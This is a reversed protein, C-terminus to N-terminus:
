KIFDRHFFNGNQIHMTQDVITRLFEWRAQSYSFFSSNILFLTAKEKVCMLITNRSTGDNLLSKVFPCLAMNVHM